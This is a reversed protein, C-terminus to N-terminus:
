NKVVKEKGGMKERGDRVANEKQLPDIQKNKNDKM